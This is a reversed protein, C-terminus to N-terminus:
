AVALKALLQFLVIINAAGVPGTRASLYGSLKARPDGTTLTVDSTEAFADNWLASAFDARGSASGGPPFSLKAARTSLL